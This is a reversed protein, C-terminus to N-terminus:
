RRSPARAELALRSGDLDEVGDPVPGVRCAPLAVWRAPRGGSAPLTQRLADGLALSFAYAGKTSLHIPDYFGSPDTVAGRGDVVTLNPFRALWSRAFAEHEAEFGTAALRDHLGPWLPPLVWYVPIGNAEALALFGAVGEANAPDCGWRPFVRARFAEMEPVTWGASAASPMLGAGGNQGWNRNFLFNMYRRGDGRGGLSTMVKERVSRRAQLTPLLEGLVVEGFLSPDRAWWALRAAEPLGAVLPWHTRTARVGDKLLMPSFDVVVAEPTAGARLATRLLAYSAPAQSGAVALNYVRRGSRAAVARPVLGCKVKSDGFGLVQCGTAAHSAERVSRVYAWEEVGLIDVRRGAVSREAVAVLAIMGILGWPLRGTRLGSLSVGMGPLGKGGQRGCFGM